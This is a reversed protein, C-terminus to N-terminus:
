IVANYSSLNTGCGDKLKTPISIKQQLVAKYRDAHVVCLFLGLCVQYPQTQGLPWTVRQLAITDRHSQCLLTDLQLLEYDSVM